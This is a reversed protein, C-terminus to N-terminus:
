ARSKRKRMKRLCDLKKQKERMKIADAYIPRPINTRPFYADGPEADPPAMPYRPKIKKRYRIHFWYLGTCTLAIVLITAWLSQLLVAITLSLGAAALILVGM